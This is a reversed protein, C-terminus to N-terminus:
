IAVNWKLKDDIFIDLNHTYYGNHHNYFKIQVQYSDNAFYSILDERTTKTRQKLFEYVNDTIDDDDPEVCYITLINDDFEINKFRKGEIESLPRSFIVGFDECCQQYSEYVWHIKCMDTIIEGYFGKKNYNVSTILAM